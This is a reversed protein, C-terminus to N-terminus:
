TAFTEPHRHAEEVRHVTTSFTDENLEIVRYGPADNAFTAETGIPSFQLGTSPTSVVRAHRLPGAFNHHVHGCCVFRVIPYEDLLDAFAQRDTIGIRDMWVSGIEVPPHHCFVITPSSAHADLQLRLWELQASGMHGAVEGPLRTDIGLLRWNGVSVDFNIRDDDPTPQECQRDIVRGLVARMVNRDDHNGPVILLRDDWAGLMERVIQYTEPLEDHTHDGTVIVQDFTPERAQIVDLVIGLTEQTPIGKLTEQPDRFLHLDTLQLLRITPM